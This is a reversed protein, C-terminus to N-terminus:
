QTITAMVRRNEQRGAATDNTAIPQSFGHGNTDLRAADIGLTKVLYNKVSDARRQSLGMNYTESGRNDTHGELTVNATNHLKIFNAMEAINDQEQPRITDKDFDFKVDLDLSVATKQVLAKDGFFVRTVFDTMGEPTSLAGQTTAFGCGGANVMETLNKTGVPEDAIQVTYVCVRDGFDAKLNEAAMGPSVKSSSTQVGDSVVIIAIDGTSNKLYDRMDSLSQSIATLGKVSVKNVAKELAPASYDTMGYVLQSDALNGPSTYGITHVGGQLTLDAIENNIGLVINRASKFKQEGNYNFFMSTSADFVIVFNDVKQTGRAADAQKVVMAGGIVLTMLLTLFLKSLKNMDNRWTLTKLPKVDMIVM